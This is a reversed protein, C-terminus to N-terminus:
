VEDEGIQVNEARREEIRLEVYFIYYMEGFKGEGPLQQTTASDLGFHETWECRWIVLYFRYSVFPTARLSNCV